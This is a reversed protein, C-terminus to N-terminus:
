KSVVLIGVKLMVPVVGVHEKMLLLRVYPMRMEVFVVHVM